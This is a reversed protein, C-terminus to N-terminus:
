SGADSGRGLEAAAAAVIKLFTSGARHRHLTGLSGFGHEAPVHLAGQVDEWPYRGSDTV